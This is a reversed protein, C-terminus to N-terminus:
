HFSFTQQPWLMMFVFVQSEAKSKNDLNNSKLGDDDNNDDDDDANLDIHLDSAVDMFIYVLGSWQSAARM